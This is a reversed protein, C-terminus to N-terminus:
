IRSMGRKVKELFEYGGYSSGRCNRWDLCSRLLKELWRKMWNSWIMQLGKKASVTSKNLAKVLNVWPTMYLYREIFILVM